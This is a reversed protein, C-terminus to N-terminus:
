LRARRTEGAENAQWYVGTQVELATLWGGPAYATTDICTGHLTAAPRGTDQPTHGCIMHKGSIHPEPTRFREHLLISEAQQDLPIKPDAFAHVFFHTEIEYYLRCRELFDWHAQPISDFDATRKYDRYSQLTREGGFLLWQTREAESERARLMMLEHNGLLPILIGTKEFEILWQLVDRSHRGRDIYDGLTVVQDGQHLPLCNMLACLAEYCGHIDGIAFVQM